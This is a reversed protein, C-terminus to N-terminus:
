HIERRFYVPGRRRAVASLQQRRRRDLQRSQDLQQRGRRDVPLHDRHCDPPGPRVHQRYRDLRRSLRRLHQALGRSLSSVVITASGGSLTGSGVTVNGNSADELVVTGGSVPSVGGTVNVTFTVAHGNLSSNPGNDTLTTTTNNQVVQVDGANVSQWHHPEVTDGGYVAFISHSGVYALTANSVTITANGNSDLTGFGVTANSNSADELTVTEGTITAQNQVAVNAKFTVPGGLLSPNPGLDQLTVVTGNTSQVTQTIEASMSPGFISDGGYVAFISHSGAATLSSVTFTANGSANLTSSGLPTTAAAPVDELTM